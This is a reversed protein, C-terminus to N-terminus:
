FTLSFDWFSLSFKAAENKETLYKIKFWNDTGRLIYRHSRSCTIQAQQHHQSGFYM